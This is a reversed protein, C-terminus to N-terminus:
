KATLERQWNPSAAEVWDLAALANAPYLSPFGPETEILFGNALYDLESINAFSVGNDRFFADTQAETWTPDLALLVGAALTM